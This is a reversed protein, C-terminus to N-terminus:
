ELMSEDVYHNRLYDTWIRYGTKEFHVHDDAAVDAPLYGDPGALASYVDLYWCGKRACMEKLKENFELITAKHITQGSEGAVTEMIEETPFVSTVYITAKKTQESGDSRIYDIVKEYKEIFSDLPWGIENIGLTLYISSYNRVTVFYLYNGIMNDLSVGDACVYHCAEIDSFLQMGEVFSNGIHTTTAFSDLSLPTGRVPVVANDGAPVLAGADNRTALPTSSSVGGGNTQEGSAQVEAPTPTATPVTIQQEQEQKKGSEKEGGGLLTVVAFAIAAVACLALVGLAPILNKEWNKRGGSNGRRGVAGGGAAPAAGDDYGYDYDADEYDYDEDEYGYDGAEYGYDGAEQDYDFLVADDSEAEPAAEANESADGSADEAAGDEMPWSMEGSGAAAFRAFPDEGDEETWPTEADSVAGPADEAVWGYDEEGSVPAEDPRAPPLEGFGDDGFGDDYEDDYEDYDDYDNKGRSFLGKFSRSANGLLSPKKNERELAPNEEDYSDQSRKRFTM